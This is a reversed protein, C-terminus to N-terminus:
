NLQTATEPHPVNRWEGSPMQIQGPHLAKILQDQLSIFHPLKSVGETLGANYAKWFEDSAKTGREMADAHHHTKTTLGDLAEGAKQHEKTMDALHYLYDQVAKDHEHAAAKVKGWAEAAGMLSGTAALGLAELVYGLSRAVAGLGQFTAILNTFQPIM